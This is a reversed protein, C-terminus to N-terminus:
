FGGLFGLVRQAFFFVLGALLLLGLVDVKVRLRPNLVLRFVFYVVAYCSVYIGLDDVRLSTLVVYPIM